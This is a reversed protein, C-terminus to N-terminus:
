SMTIAVRSRCPLIRPLSSDITCAPRRSWRNKLRPCRAPPLRKSRAATSACAPVAMCRQVMAMACAANLATTPSRSAASACGGVSHAHPQVVNRELVAGHTALYAPPLADLAADLQAADDIRWQGNGGVGTPLKLRVGGGKRLAAAAQTADARSFVTYGPLTAPMLATALAQNWGDVRQAAETILPHGIVKTALFAYPVVGGLVDRTDQIGLTRAQTVTLTEDPIHLTHAAAGGDHQVRENSEAHVNRVGLLRAVEACVWAHTAREHGDHPVDRLMHGLVQRYHTHQM